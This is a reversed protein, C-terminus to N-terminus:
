RAGRRKNSLYVGVLIIGAAFIQTLEFSEGDLVGWGVAVIPMTYTVSSSFVPSSIQIMRNFLVKAVATGVLSLIAVYVSALQM